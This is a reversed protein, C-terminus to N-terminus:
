NAVLTVYTFTGAALPVSGTGLGGGALEVDTAGPTPDVNPLFVNAGTSGAAWGATGLAQAPDHTGTISVASPTGDVHVFVQAKTADYAFAPARAVTFSRTSVLTGHALVAENVVIVGPVGYTSSPTTCQSAETPPTVDLLTTTPAVCLEIRGNPPTTKASAPDGHVQISAGFIGCFQADTSDWDVLEGTFAVCAGGDKAADPSRSADRTADPLLAADPTAPSSGCAALVLISM